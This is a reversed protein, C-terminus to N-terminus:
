KLFKLHFIVTKTIVDTTQQMTKMREPTEANLKIWINYIVAIKETM